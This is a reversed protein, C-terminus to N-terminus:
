RLRFRLGASIQILSPDVALPRTAAAAAQAAATDFAATRAADDLGRLTGSMWTWAFSKGPSHFYRAEFCLSTSADIPLDAALGAHLGFAIWTQDPVSAKALFVAAQGGGSPVAPLGAETEALISHLILAPGASFVLTSRRGAWRAALGAYIPVATIESPDPSLSLARSVAPIPGGTKLGTEAAIGNKAYGFGALVGLTTGFYRTFSGGIFVSTKPSASFTNEASAGALGGVAFSQRHLSEAAALSLAAGLSFGIEGQLRPPAQAALRLPLMAAGACVLAAAAIRAMPTRM